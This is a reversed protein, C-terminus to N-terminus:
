EQLALKQSIIEQFTQILSPPVAEGLWDVVIEDTIQDYPIYNNKDFVAPITITKDTAVDKVTIPKLEFPVVGQCFTKDGAENTGVYDFHVHSIIDPLGYVTTRTLQRIDFNYTITM